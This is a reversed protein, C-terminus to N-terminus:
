EICMFGFKSLNELDKLTEKIGPLRGQYKSYSTSHQVSEHGGESGFYEKEWKSSINSASSKYGLHGAQANM